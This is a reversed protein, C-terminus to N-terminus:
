KLSPNSCDRSKLYYTIERHPLKWQSMLVRLWCNLMLLVHILVNVRALSSWGHRAPTSWSKHQVKHRQLSWLCYPSATLNSRHLCTVPPTIDGVDKIWVASTIKTAPLNQCQPLRYHIGLPTQSLLVCNKVQELHSLGTKTQPCPISISSGCYWGIICDSSFATNEM